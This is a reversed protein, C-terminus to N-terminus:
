PASRADYRWTQNVGGNCVWAILKAGNALSAGPVDLCLRNAANQLVYGDGASQLVWLQSPAGGCQSQVISGATPHELETGICKSSMRSVIRYRAEGASEINWQQNLGGHCDYQIAPTGDGAQGGPLDICKGSALSQVAGRPPGSPAAQATGTFSIRFSVRGGETHSRQQV